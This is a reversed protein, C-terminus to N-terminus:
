AHLRAFPDKRPVPRWQPPLGAAGGAPPLPLETPTVTPCGGQEEPLFASTFAAEVETPKM